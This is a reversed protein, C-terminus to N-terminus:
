KPTTSTSRVYAIRAPAAGSGAVLYSLAVIGSDPLVKHDALV